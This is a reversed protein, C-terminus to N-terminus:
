SNDGTRIEGGGKSNGKRVRKVIRLTKERGKSGPELIIERVVMRRKLEEPGKRGEM